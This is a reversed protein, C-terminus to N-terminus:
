SALNYQSFVTDNKEVQRKKCNQSYKSDSQLKTSLRRFQSYHPNIIKDQLWHRNRIQYQQVSQLLAFAVLSGFGRFDGEKAFITQKSCSKGSVTFPLISQPIRYAFYQMGIKKEVYAM